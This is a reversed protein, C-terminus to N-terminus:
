RVPRWDPDVLGLSHSLSEWRVRQRHYERWAERRHDQQAPMPSLGTLGAVFWHHFSGDPDHEVLWNIGKEVRERLEEIQRTRVAEATETM